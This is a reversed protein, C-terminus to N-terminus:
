QEVNHLRLVEEAVERRTMRRDMAQKELYRHAQEESMGSYQILLCKARDITRIDQIKQELRETKPATLALRRHVARCLHVASLFMRRGMGPHYLLIGKEEQESLLRCTEADRVILLVGATTEAAEAALSVGSGDPLPVAIVIVSYQRSSFLKKAEAATKVTEPLKGFQEALLESLTKVAKENGSILLFNELPIGGKMRCISIDAPVM